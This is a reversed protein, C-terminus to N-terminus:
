TNTAGPIKPLPDTDRRRPLRCMAIQTVSYTRCRQMIRKTSLWLGICGASVLLSVVIPWTIMDIQDEEPKSQPQLREEVDIYSLRKNPDSTLMIQNRTYINQQQDEEGQFNLNQLLPLNEQVNTSIEMNQPWQNTTIRKRLPFDRLNQLTELDTAPFVNDKGQARKQRTRDTTPRILGANVLIEVKEPTKTEVGKDAEGTDWAVAEDVLVRCNSTFLAIFIQNPFM